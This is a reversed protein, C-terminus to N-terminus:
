QMGESGLDELGFEVFQEGHLDLIGKINFTIGKLILRDSKFVKFDKPLCTRDLLGITEHLTYFASGPHNKTRFIMFTQAVVRSPLLIVTGLDQSVTTKRQEGSDPDVTLDSDHELVGSYGHKRKLSYITAGFAKM